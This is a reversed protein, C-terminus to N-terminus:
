APTNRTLPRRHPLQSPANRQIEKCSAIALETSRSLFDAIIELERADYTSWLETMKREIGVYISKIPEVASQRIRVLV